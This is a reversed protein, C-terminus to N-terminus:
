IFLIALAAGACLGLTQYGHTRYNCSQKYEKLKEIAKSKILKLGKLQGSLDFRGLNKGLDLMILSVTEPLGVTSAVVAKMCGSVNPSYHNELENSFKLFLEKLLGNTEAATKRSLEPVPTLNYLLEREMFNLLSITNELMSVEKRYRKSLSFGFGGCTILILAAGLCRIIM